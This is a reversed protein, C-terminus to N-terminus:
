SRQRKLIFSAHKADDITDIDISEDNNLIFLSTKGSVRLTSKKFANVSTIYINGTERYNISENLFSQRMPREALDYKPTGQFIQGSWLFPSEPIVGVLSDSGDSLMQDFALNLMGPRRIPCTPQLLVVHSFSYDVSLADLCHSITEETPSFDTSLLEPRKLFNAGLSRAIKGIEEDDTSVVVQQPLSLQLASEISWALLPKGDIDILNKRPIGKSGGRAPILVLASLEAM